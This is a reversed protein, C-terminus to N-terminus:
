KLLALIEALERRISPLADGGEFLPQQRGPPKVAKKPSSQMHQRAGEITFRKEYLLHKIQLLLEV